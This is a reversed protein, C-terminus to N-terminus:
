EGQLELRKTDIEKKLDEINYILQGKTPHIVPKFSSGIKQVVLYKFKNLDSGDAYPHLYVPIDGQEFEQDPAKSGLPRTREGGLTIPGVDYGGVIEAPKYNLMYKGTVEGLRNTVALELLDKNIKDRVFERDEAGTNPDSFVRPMAFKSKTSVNGSTLTDVIMGEGDVYLNEQINMLLSKTNEENMMLNAAIEPIFQLAEAEPKDFGLSRLYDYSRTFSGGMIGKLRSKNEDTDKNNYAEVIRTMMTAENPNPIGLFEDAGKYNPIINSAITLISHTKKDLAGSLVDIPTGNVDYNSYRKYLNIGTAIDQINNNTGSVVRDMFLRFSKPHAKNVISLDILRANRNTDGVGNELADLYTKFYNPNLGGILHKDLIDGKKDSYSGFTNNIASTVVISEKNITTQQKNSAVLREKRKTFETDIADFIQKEPINIKKLLPMMQEIVVKQDPNLRTVDPDGDSSINTIAVRLKNMSPVDGFEGSDVIHDLFLKGATMQVLKGAAVDSFFIKKGDYSLGEESSTTLINNFLSTVDKVVADADYNNSKYKDLISNTNFTISELYQFKAM